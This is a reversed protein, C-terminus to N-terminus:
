LWEGAGLWAPLFYGTRFPVPQKVGNNSPDVAWLLLHASVTADDRTLQANDLHSYHWDM